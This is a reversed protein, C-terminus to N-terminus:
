RRSDPPYDIWDSSPFSIGFLADKIFKYSIFLLFLILGLASLRSGTSTDYAKWVITAHTHHYGRLPKNSYESCLLVRAASNEHQQRKRLHHSTRKKDAYELLFAKDESLGFRRVNHIRVKGYPIGDYPMGSSDTQRDFWSGPAFLVLLRQIAAFLVPAAVAM